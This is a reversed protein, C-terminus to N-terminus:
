SQEAPQADGTFSVSAFGKIFHCIGTVVLGSPKGQGRSFRHDLRYVLAATAGHLPWKVHPLSLENFM